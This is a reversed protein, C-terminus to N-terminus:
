INNYMYRTHVQQGAWVIQFIAECTHELKIVMETNKFLM